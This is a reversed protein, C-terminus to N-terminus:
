VASGCASRIRRRLVSLSLFGVVLLPLLLGGFFKIFVLAFEDPQLSAMYMALTLAGLTFLNMALVLVKHLVFLAYESM